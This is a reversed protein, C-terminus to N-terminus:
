AYFAAHHRVIMQTAASDGTTIFQLANPGPALGHVGSDWWDSAVLDLTARADTAGDLMVTRQGFDVVLFHGSAVDHFDLHASTTENIVSATAFPGDLELVPDSPANGASTVTFPAADHPIVATEEAVAYFRPDSLRLGIAFPREYGRTTRTPPATQEEIGDLSVCRAAFLYATAGLEPRTSIVMQREDVPMFAALQGQLSRLDSLSQAEMVGEYTITKGRLFTTRPLEGLRGISSDRVDEFDAKSFLGGIKDVRFRPYGNLRDNLTVLGDWVHIAELGAVGPAAPAVPLVLETM